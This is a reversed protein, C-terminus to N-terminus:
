QREEEDRLLFPMLALWLPVEQTLVLPVAAVLLVVVVRAVDIAKAPLSPILPAVLALIGAVGYSSMGIFVLGHMKHSRFVFSMTETYGIGSLPVHALVQLAFAAMELRMSTSADVADVALIKAETEPVLGRGLSFIGELTNPNLWLVFAAVAIGAGAAAAWIRWNRSQALRWGILIVLCVLLGIWAGRSRNVVILLVNIAWCLAFLAMESRACRENLVYWAAIAAGLAAAYSSRNVLRIEPRIEGFFHLSGDEILIALIALLSLGASVIVIPKAIARPRLLDSPFTRLTVIVLLMLALQIIFQLEPARHSWSAQAFELIIILATSAILLLDALDVAGVRGAAAWSNAAALGLLLPVWLFPLPEIDSPKWLDIRFVDDLYRTFEFAVLIVSYLLM